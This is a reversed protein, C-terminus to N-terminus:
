GSFGPVLIAKTLLDITSVGTRSRGAQNTLLGVRKGRLAAFGDAELVDVERVM